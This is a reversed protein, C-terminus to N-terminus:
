ENQNNETHGFSFSVSFRSLVENRYNQFYRAHQLVPDHYPNSNSIPPDAGMFEPMLTPPSITTQTLSKM